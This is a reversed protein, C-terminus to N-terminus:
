DTQSRRGSTPILQHLHIGSRDLSGYLVLAITSDICHHFLTGMGVVILASYLDFGFPIVVLAEGLAHPIATVALVASPRMGRRFFRAGLVGIIIHTAARLAILPGLTILFGLASGVGVLAAVPPSIFMALMTPVHSGLTASFPPMVIQLWGRFFLPIIIALAALLAGYLLEKTQLRSNM